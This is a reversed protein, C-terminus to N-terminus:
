SRRSNNEGAKECSHVKEEEETNANQEQRERVTFAIETNTYNAIGDGENDNACQNPDIPCRPVHCNPPPPVVTACIDYRFVDCTAVLKSDDPM